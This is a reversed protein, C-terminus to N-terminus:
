LESIVKTAAEVPNAAATIPRGIVIMDSGAAIAQKPTMVRAQDGVQAWTPRIGPTLIFFDDGCVEHVLAIEQPSCVVGDLGQKKSLEALRKVQDVVSGTLGIQGLDAQSLSTLITVALLKAAGKPVAQRAAALMKAGGLAHVNLISVGLSVAAECAKAVTNPIDHFKLDLFTQCGADHIQTVIQPGERTFLQKGVKFCGVHDRLVSVLNMADQRSDVDLPVCIKSKSNNQSM